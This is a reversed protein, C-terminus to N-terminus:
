QFPHYDWLSTLIACDHEGTYYGMVETVCYGVDVLVLIVDKDVRLVNSIVQFGVLDDVIASADGTKAEGEFLTVEVVVADFAKTVDDGFATSGGVGSLDLGDDVYCGGRFHGM